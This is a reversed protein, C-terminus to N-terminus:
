GSTQITSQELGSACTRTGRAGFERLVNEDILYVALPLSM